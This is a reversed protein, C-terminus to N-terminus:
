NLAHSGFESGEVVPLWLSKGIDGFIDLKLRIICCLAYSSCHAICKTSRSLEVTEKQGDFSCNPCGLRVPSAIGLVTAIALLLM